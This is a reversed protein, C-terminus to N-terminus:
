LTTSFDRGCLTGSVKNGDQLIALKCAKQEYPVPPDYVTGTITIADSHMGLSTTATPQVSITGVQKVTGTTALHYNGKPDTDRALLVCADLEYTLSVETAGQVPNSSATGFVHATGGLPCVYRADQVRSRSACAWSPWAM